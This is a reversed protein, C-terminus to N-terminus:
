RAPADIADVVMARQDATLSRMRGRVLELTATLGAGALLSARVAERLAAAESEAVDRAWSDIDLVTHM